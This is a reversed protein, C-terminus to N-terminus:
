DGRQVIALELESVAFGQTNLSSCGKRRSSLRLEFSTVGFSEPSYSVAEIDMDALNM